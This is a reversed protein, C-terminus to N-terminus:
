KQEQHWENWAEINIMWTGNVKKFITSPYDGKHIRNRLTKPSLGIEFAAKYLTIFKIHESSM